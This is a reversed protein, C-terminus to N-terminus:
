DRTISQERQKGCDEMAIASAEQDIINKVQAYKGLGLFMAGLRRRVEM